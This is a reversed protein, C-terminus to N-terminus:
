DIVILVRAPGNIRTSELEKKGDIIEGATLARIETLIWDEDPPVFKEEVGERGKLEEVLAKTSALTVFERIETDTMARSNEEVM